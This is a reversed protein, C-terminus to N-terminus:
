RRFWGKGLSDGLSWQCYAGAQMCLHNHFEQLHDHEPALPYHKPTNYGLTVVECGQLALVRYTEPWRRDNCICMGLKGLSTDFTPFGLNGKKFYRKELHQFPRQPEYESHGPLHIKRYKGIIKKSTEVYVSTNFPEGNDKEAYGFSIIINEEKILEFIEALLSFPVETEYFKDLKAQDTIYYRPFFTTLCLEPFVVLKAEHAKAEVLLNLMRSIVSEKSDEPNIPGLQAAAAIYKSRNKM